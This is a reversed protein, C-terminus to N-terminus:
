SALETPFSEFVQCECCIVKRGPGRPLPFGDCWEHGFSCAVPAPAPITDGAKRVEECEELHAEWEEATM